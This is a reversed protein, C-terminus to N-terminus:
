ISDHQGHQPAPGHTAPPAPPVPGPAPQPPTPESELFARVIYAVHPYHKQLWPNGQNTYSTQSCGNSNGPTPNPVSELVSTGYSAEAMGLVVGFPAFGQKDLFSNNKYNVFLQTTRTNPGATAYVITGRVNSHTVPDDKIPTSWAATVAPVAAIGFQVVFNPVVRFFAAGDFYHWPHSVLKRFQAAGKPAWEPFVRVTFAGDTHNGINTYFTVDFPATDDAPTATIAGACAVAACALVLLLGVRM